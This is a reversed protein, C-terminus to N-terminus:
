FIQELNELIFLDPGIDFDQSVTGEVAVNKIHIYSKLHTVKLILSIWM